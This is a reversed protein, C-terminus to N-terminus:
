LDRSYVAQNYNSTKTRVFYNRGNLYAKKMVREQTRVKQAFLFLTILDNCQFEVRYACETLCTEGLDLMEPMRPVGM